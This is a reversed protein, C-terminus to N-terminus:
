KHCRSNKIIHIVIIKCSIALRGNGPIIGVLLTLQARNVIINYFDIFFGRKVFYFIRSICLLKSDIDFLM